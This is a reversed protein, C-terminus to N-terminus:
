EARLSECRPRPGYIIMVSIILIIIIVNDIILWNIKWAIAFIYM